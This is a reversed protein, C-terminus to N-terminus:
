ENDCLEACLIGFLVLIEEALIQTYIRRCKEEGGRCLM